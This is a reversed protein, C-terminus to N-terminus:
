KASAILYMAAPYEAVCWVTVTMLLASRVGGKLDWTMPDGAADTFRSIYGPGYSRYTQEGEDPEVPVGIFDHGGVTLRVTTDDNAAGSTIFLEIGAKQDSTYVADPDTDVYNTLLFSKQYVNKGTDPVVDSLTWGGPVVYGNADTAPEDTPDGRDDTEPTLLHVGDSSYDYKYNVPQSRARRERGFTVGIALLAAIALVVAAVATLHATRRAETEKM